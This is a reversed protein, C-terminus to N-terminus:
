ALEPTIDIAISGDNPFTEISGDAFTVQFEAQFSGATSTDGTQWAYKVFGTNASVITANSNVSATAAGIRKMHFKVTAGTVDRANGSGDKLNAAIQPSTDNQKINFAM